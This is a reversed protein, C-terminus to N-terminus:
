KSVDKLKEYNQTMWKLYSVGNPMTERVEIIPIGAAKCKKVLAKVTASSAQTNNVFFAIENRSIAKNMKEIIKASPDTENEIAEEFDKNGIKFNAAKLAYDFVPESVYVPKSNKGDITKAIAKIEAIQALYNEGNKKFYSAHKADLKSLKKVLYNVYDEPMDLNYWIHPNDSSKLKMIDEGVKVATKGNSKALKSMWNDYGMGNAIVINASNITTASKTTPEFDHPNIDGNSIIAESSGYKGVIDKAIDAYVNTSTVIKIGNSKESKRQSCATVLTLSALALAMITFIKKIKMRNGKKYIYIM